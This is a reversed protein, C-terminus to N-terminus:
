PRRVVCSGMGLHGSVEKGKYPCVQAIRDTDSRYVDGVIDNSPKVSVTIVGAGRPGQRDAFELPTADPNSGIAILCAAGGERFRRRSGQVWVIWTAVNKAFHEISKLAPLQKIREPEVASHGKLSVPEYQSGILSATSLHDAPAISSGKEAEPDRVPPIGGRSRNIVRCSSGRARSRCM